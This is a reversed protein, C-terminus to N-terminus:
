TDCLQLIAIQFMKMGLVGTRFNFTVVVVDRQLLLEPGYILESASGTVYYGGYIFVM